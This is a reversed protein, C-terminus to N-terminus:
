LGQVCLFGYIKQHNWSTYFFVLTMFNTASYGVLFIIRSSATRSLNLRIWSCHRSDGFVVLKFIQWKNKFIWRTPDTQWMMNREGHFTALYEVDFICSTRITIIVVNAKDKSLSWPLLDLHNLLRTSRQKRQLTRKFTEGTTLVIIEVKRSFFRFFCKLQDSLIVVCGNLLKRVENWWVMIRKRHGKFVYFFERTKPYKRPTDFPFM